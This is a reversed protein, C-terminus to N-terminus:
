PEHPPANILKTLEDLCARIAQAAGADPPALEPGPQVEYAAQKVKPAPDDRLRNRASAPLQPARAALLRLSPAPMAALANALDGRLWPAPFRSAALHFIAHASLRENVLYQLVEDPTHESCALAAILRPKNLWALEVFLTEPMAPNELLALCADEDESTAFFEAVEPWICENRALRQRTELDDDQALEHQIAAPLDPLAAVYRRDDAEKARSLHLLEVEDLPRRAAVAARVRPHPSFILARLIKDPLNKRTLLALQIEERDSDAWFPLLDDPAQNAAALAFRVVPSPDSSLAIWLDPHLAKNQTLAVRAAPDGHAAIRAQAKLKLAPNEALARWILASEAELLADMDRPPLNPNVAVAARVAESPQQLLQTLSTPPTRPNTALAELVSSPFDGAQQAMEELLSSPTLAYGALFVWGQESPPEHSFARLLQTPIPPKRFKRAVAEPGHQDILDVLEAVTQPLTM